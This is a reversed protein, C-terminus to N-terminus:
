YYVPAGTLGHVYRQGFAWVRLGRLVRIPTGPTHSIRPPLGPKLLKKPPRRCGRCLHLYSRYVGFIWVGLVGFGLGLVRFGLGWVGEFGM